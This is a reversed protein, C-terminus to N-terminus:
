ENSIAHLLASPDSYGCKEAIESLPHGEARMVLATRVRLNKLYSYPTVGLYKKFKRIFGETSLNFKKAIEEISLKESLKERMINLSEIIISDTILECKEENIIKNM